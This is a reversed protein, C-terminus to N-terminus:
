KYKNLVKQSLKKLKEHMIYYQKGKLFPNDHFIFNEKNLKKCSDVIMKAMIPELDSRVAAIDLNEEIVYKNFDIIKGTDIGTDILHTTLGIKSIEQNIIPWEVVDMGRYDPLIGMHCNIIGKRFKNIINKRIIGGGTFLAIDVGLDNLFKEIKKTNFNNCFLIKLNNKKSFSVLDNEEINLEIKLDVINYRKNNKYAKKGLILKKWIKSILRKGDRKFESKFRKYNYLNLIIIGSIEINNKKCLEAVCLTYLSYKSPSFIVIGKNKM